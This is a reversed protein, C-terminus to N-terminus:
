IVGRIIMTFCTETILSGYQQKRIRLAGFSMLLLPSFYLSKNIQARHEPHSSSDAESSSAHFFDTVTRGKAERQRM